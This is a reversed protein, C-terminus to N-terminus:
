CRVYIANAYLAYSDANNIAQSSTLATAAAYGYGNDQTGPSYTGPAHTFEHITTTTQDQRHCQNTLLPLNSYYIPCNAIINQSPITYALVNPSCYGYPDNCYYRTRGGTTSGSERAVARFRAAVTNRATTATTKFYEQFKAASGSAAANAANNSLTVSRSLAARLTDGNAGACSSVITRSTDTVVAPAVRAAAAGDVDIKLKNSRFVLKSDSLDTSGAKALPVAAESILEFAGGASLDTVAAVEFTNELTAGPELTAFADETLEATKVRVLVGKFPVAAGDKFVNVKEVPATDLFTGSKLFKFTQGANNKISAKVVSGGASSLTVAVDARKELDVAASSVLPLLAIFGAICTKFPHM